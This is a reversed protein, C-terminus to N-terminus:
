KIVLNVHERFKKNKLEYDKKFEICDAHLGKFLVEKKISTGKKTFRYVKFIGLKDVLAVPAAPMPPMEIEDYRLPTIPVREIYGNDVGTAEEIVKVVVSDIVEDNGIKKKM